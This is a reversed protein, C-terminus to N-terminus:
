VNSELPCLVVDMNETLEPLRLQSLEYVAEARSSVKLAKYAEFLHLKLTGESINMKRAILKTALMVFAQFDVLFCRSM